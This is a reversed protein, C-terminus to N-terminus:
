IHKSQNTYLTKFLFFKSIIINVCIDIIRLGNCWKLSNGNSATVRKMNKVKALLISTSYPAQFTRLSLLFSNHWLLAVQCANFEVKCSVVQM